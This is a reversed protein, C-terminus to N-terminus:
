AKKYLVVVTIDDAPVTYASQQARYCQLYLTSGSIAPILLYSAPHGTPANLIGLPSYGAKAINIQQNTAYTGPTGSSISIASSNKYVKTVLESKNLADLIKTFLKKDNLM